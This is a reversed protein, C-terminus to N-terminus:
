SPLEEAHPGPSRAIWWGHADLMARTVGHNFWVFTEGPVALTEQDDIVLHGVEAVFCGWPRNQVSGDNSMLKADLGERLMLNLDRTPGDILQAYPADGGDFRLPASSEVLRQKRGDDWLLLVGAGSLVCFDRQVGPYPSFPGDREIDAVSFRLTWDRADPWAILERTSGGGNRWPAPVVEHLRILRTAELSM